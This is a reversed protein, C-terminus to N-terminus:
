PFARTGAGNLGERLEVALEQVREISEGARQVLASGVIVGDAL